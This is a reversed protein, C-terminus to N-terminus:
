PVDELLAQILPHDADARAKLIAVVEATQEDTPILETPSEWWWDLLVSHLWEPERTAVEARTPVYCGARILGAHARIVQRILEESVGFREDDKM